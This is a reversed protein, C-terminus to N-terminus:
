KPNTTLRAQEQGDATRWIQIQGSWDGGVIRAGDDSIAARLAVDAMPGFTRLLKGDPSWLKVRNDRGASVLRGDHAFQVSLVGGPHAAISRIQRGDNMEWLRITGDGSASALMNSDPRWSVDTVPGQHGELNQYEQMTEAEWVVLGGARDASALLVGDPSYEVALIWDTHKKIENQTSGDATAFVRLIRDPGGLAVRTHSPQIDAGRVADLEDGLEFLRKGTKVDFVVVRGQRADHGGGALLLAGSRSFKLVHAIGEPFPLVGLLEAKDLQYLVIQKQGAVALLPAWPSIALASVAGPRATKPLTQRTVGAPMIPAGVPRAAGSAMALDLKPKAQAAKSGSDKLAGGAIWQRILELKAAPMKEMAPPMKPEDQHTILRYLLSEDPDGPKIAEGSAGGKVLREYSDLALDNRARNQNHCSFCHERLVARVHDAYTTKSAPDAALLATLVVIFSM